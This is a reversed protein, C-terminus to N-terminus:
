ATTLVLVETAAMERSLACTQDERFSEPPPDKVPIARDGSPPVIAQEFAFLRISSNWRDFPINDEVPDIARGL